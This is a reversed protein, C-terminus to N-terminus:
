PISPPKQNQPSIPLTKILCSYNTAKTELLAHAAPLTIGTLIYTQAKSSNNWLHETTTTTDHSPWKM